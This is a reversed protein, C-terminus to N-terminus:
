PMWVPTYGNLPQITLRQAVNGDWGYLTTGSIVALYGDARWAPLSENTHQPIPDRLTLGDWVYIEEYRQQISRFALWGQPSWMPYSEVEATHSINVVATGDWVYIEASGQDLLGVFALRGDSSWAPHEIYNM